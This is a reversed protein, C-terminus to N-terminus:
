TTTPPQYATYQNANPEQNKVQFFAIALLLTAIWIIILGLLIITLCGGILMMIGATGFLGIDSKEKLLNLSQRIFFTAIIAFICLVGFVIVFNVLIAFGSELLQNTDINSMDPITSPQTNWDGNWGPVMQQMMTAAVPMILIIVLILAIVIGVIGAVTGILGNKFIGAERYHVSLGYLGTLILAVGILMTIIAVYPIPLFLMFVSILTLLSGIGGITKSTNTDITM